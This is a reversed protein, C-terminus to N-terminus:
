ADGGYTRLNEPEKASGRPSVTLRTISNM